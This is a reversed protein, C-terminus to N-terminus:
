STVVPAESDIPVDGLSSSCVLEITAFAHAADTAPMSLVTISATVQPAVVLPFCIM